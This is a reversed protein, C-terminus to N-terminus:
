SPPKGSTLQLAQPVTLAALGAAVGGPHGFVASAAILRDAGAGLLQPARAANVGGDVAILVDPRGSRDLLDRLRRVKDVTYPLFESTGPSSTMVTIQHVEGLVEGVTELGTAPNLAVARRVDAAALRRLSWALHRSAEVHLTVMQVPVDILADVVSDPDLIQLHVDLPLRTAAAIARVTRLGFSIDDVFHGDMVDLHLMPASAADAAAVADALRLPDAGLIAPIVQAM